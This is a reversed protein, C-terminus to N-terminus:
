PWLTLWGLVWSIVSKTTVAALVESNAIFSIQLQFNYIIMESKCCIKFNHISVAYKFIKKISKRLWTVTDNSKLNECRYRHFTSDESIHRRTTRYFNMSTKSSRVAWSRAEKKNTTQKSYRWDKLHLYHIGRFRRKVEVLCCLTVNWFFCYM